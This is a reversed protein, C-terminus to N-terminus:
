MVYQTKVPGDNCYLSNTDMVLTCTTPDLTAPNRNHSLRFIDTQLSMKHPFTNGYSIDM